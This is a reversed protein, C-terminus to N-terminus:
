CQLAKLVEISVLWFLQNSWGLGSTLHPSAYIARYRETGTQEGRWWINENEGEIEYNCREAISSTLGSISFSLVLASIWFLIRRHFDPVTVSRILNWYWITKNQETQKILRVRNTIRDKRNEPPLASNTIQKNGFLELRTWEGSWVRLNTGDILTEEFQWTNGQQIRRSSKWHTWMIGNNHGCGKRDIRDIPVTACTILTGLTVLSILINDLQRGLSRTETGPGSSSEPSPCIHYWRRGHQRDRGRGPLQDPWCECGQLSRTGPPCSWACALWSHLSPPFIPPLLSSPADCHPWPLSISAMELIGPNCPLYLLHVSVEAPQISGSPVVLVPVCTTTSLLHLCLWNIITQNTQELLALCSSGSNCLSGRTHKWQSFDQHDRCTTPRPTHITM